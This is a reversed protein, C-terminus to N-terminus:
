KEYQSHVIKNQPLWIQQKIEKLNFDMVSGGCRCDLAGTCTEVTKLEMLSASM